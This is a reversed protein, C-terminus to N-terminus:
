IGNKKLIDLLWDNADKATLPRHIRRPRTLAYVFDQFEGTKDVQRAPRPLPQTETRHLVDRFDRAGVILPNVRELTEYLTVGLSFLDARSDIERKLNRFQELPCYGWTGLGLANATATISALDLFRAIGFDVLWARNSAVDVIINDPKIDRHVVKAPEAAAVAGLVDRAICLVLKDAVGVPILSRLNPFDVLEEVVWCVPSGQYDATGDQFTRLVSAAKIRTPALVERAVREPDSRIDFLKLAVPGHTKHQGRYVCKQSGQGVLAFGTIDPFAQTIWAVDFNIAM